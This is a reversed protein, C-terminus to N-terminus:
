RGGAVVFGADSGMGSGGGAIVESMGHVLILRWMSSSVVFWSM